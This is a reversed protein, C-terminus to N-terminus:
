DRKADRGIYHKNRGIREELGLGSDMYAAQNINKLFKADKQNDLDKQEKMIDAASEKTPVQASGFLKINREEDHKKAYGMMEQIKREREEPTLKDVNYSPEQKKRLKENQEQLRAKEGYIKMDPGLDQQRSKDETQNQTGADHSKNTSSKIMEPKNRDDRHDRGDRDNRYDRHRDKDDSDIREEETKEEIKIVVMSQLDQGPDVRTLLGAQIVKRQLTAVKSTIPAKLEIRNLRLHSCGGGQTKMLTMHVRDAEGAADVPYEIQDPTARQNARMVRM